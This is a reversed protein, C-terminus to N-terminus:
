KSRDGVDNALYAGPDCGWKSGARARQADPDSRQVSFQSYGVKIFFIAIWAKTTWNIIAVEEHRFTIFPTFIARIL